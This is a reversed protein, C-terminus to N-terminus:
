ETLFEVTLGNEECAIRRLEGEPSFTGQLTLQALTATCTVEGDKETYDVSTFVFTRLANVFLKLASDEPLEELLLADSVDGVQAQLDEATVRVNFYSLGEPYSFEVRIDNYARCVVTGGCTFDGKTLTFSRTFDRDPLFDDRQAQVGCAACLFVGCLVLFVATARITKM